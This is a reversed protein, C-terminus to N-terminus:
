PKKKLAERLEAATKAGHQRLLRAVATHSRMLADDLPTYGSTSVVNVAAGRSVLLRVVELRGELAADQLATVGFKNQTKLDTPVGKDLLLAVIKTLGMQAAAHLPFVGNKMPTSINAGALILERAAAPNNHFLATCLPSCGHSHPQELNAGRSALLKVMNTHGREAACYLATTRYKGNRQDLAAGRSILATALDLHGGCAAIYLPALGREDTANIKEPESDLLAHVRRLDNWEAARHLPGAEASAVPLLVVGLFGLLSKVRPRLTRVLHFISSSLYVM